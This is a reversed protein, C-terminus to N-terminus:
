LQTMGSLTAAYIMGASALVSAQCAFQVARQGMQAYLVGGSLILFNLCASLAVLNSTIVLGHSPLLLPAALLLVGGAAIQSFIRVKVRGAAALQIGFAASAFRLMVFAGFGPWLPKLADYRGGYLLHTVFPGAFAFALGGIIALATFEILLRNSTRRFGQADGNIASSSLAPMYVTSLVVAVPIIAQCLRAGAQYIGVDHATLLAGYLLMDIQSSLATLISDLAFGSSTVLTQRIREASMNLHLPLGVKRLVGLTIIVYFARSVAFAVASWGLSRTAAAVGGTIVLMLVASSLVIAAEVEFRRRARLAVMALDGYSYASAGFFVLAFIGIRDAPVILVLLIAGVLVAAATLVLKTSLADSVVNSAEEQRASANRIASIALGYDTVVCFFTAYALATAIVGFKEPGLYRALLIFTLLGVGMRGATAALMMLKHRNTVPVTLSKSPPVAAGAESM